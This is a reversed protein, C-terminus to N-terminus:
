ALEYMKVMDRKSEVQAMTMNMKPIIKLSVQKHTEKHFGIVVLSGHRGEGLPRQKMIAAQSLQAAEEVAMNISKRENEMALHKQLDVYDDDGVAETEVTTPLPGTSEGPVQMQRALQYPRNVQTMNATAAAKRLTKLHRLCFAYHQHVSYNGTARQLARLWERQSEQNDFFLTYVPPIYDIALTQSNVIGVNGAQGGVFLQIPYMTRNLSENGAVTAPMISKVMSSPLRKLSEPVSALAKVFVGPTLMLLTRHKLADKRDYVYLESNMLVLYDKRFCGYATLELCYGQSKVLPTKLPLQLGDVVMEAPREQQYTTISSRRKATNLQRRLDEIGARKTRLLQKELLEMKKQVQRGSAAWSPSKQHQPSHHLKLRNEVSQIVSCLGNDMARGKLFHKKQM